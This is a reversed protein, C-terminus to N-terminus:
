PRRGAAPGASVPGVARAHSWDTGGFGGTEFGDVASWSRALALRARPRPRPAARPTGPLLLPGERGGGPTLDFGDDPPEPDVVQLLPHLRSLLDLLEAQRGDGRQPRGRGVWVRLKRVARTASLRISFTGCAHTARRPPREEVEIAPSIPGGSRIMLIGPGLGLVWHRFADRRKKEM